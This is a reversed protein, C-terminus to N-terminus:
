TQAAVPRPRLARRQMQPCHLPRTLALLAPVPELVPRAQSSHRQLGPMQPLAPSLRMQRCPSLQLAKLLQRDTRSCLVM